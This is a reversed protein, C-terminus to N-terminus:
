LSQQKNVSIIKNEEDIEFKVDLFQECVWINTKTHLTIESVKIRGKAIALFPILSDAAHLDIPAKSNIEKILKEAAEKGVIESKKGKEGLVDSGLLIPNKQSLENKDKTFIAWLTIESGTSLSDSYESQISVPVKFESLLVKAASTQREAVNAQELDKSANSIGKIQVIEGQEISDFFPLNTKNKLPIIKIEIEGGGKPYYGRRILKIDIKEFYRRIQPIIINALFDYPTSWKGSTGGIINITLKKESFMCPLLLSQLLLSISGSTGINISLKSSSIKSPEYILKESGLEAFRTKASCLQELAKICFLHQAKLGPQERAKRINFAEFSKGTITSLALATRLLEGGGELTSGDIKIM